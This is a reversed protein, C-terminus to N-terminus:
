IGDENVGMVKHLEEIFSDLNVTTNIQKELDEDTQTHFNPTEPLKPANPVTHIIEIKLPKQFFVAVCVLCLLVSTIIDM